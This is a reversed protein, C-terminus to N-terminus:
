KGNKLYVAFDSVETEVINLTLRRSLKDFFDEPFKMNRFTKRKRGRQRGERFFSVYFNKGFHNRYSDIFIPVRRDSIEYHAEELIEKLVEKVKLLDFKKFNEAIKNLNLLNGSMHFLILEEYLQKKEREEGVLQLMNNKRVIKLEPYNELLRRIKNVDNESFIRFYM